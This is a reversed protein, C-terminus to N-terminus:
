QYFQQVEVSYLWNETLSIAAEFEIVVQWKDPQRRLFYLLRQPSFYM